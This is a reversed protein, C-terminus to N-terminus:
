DYDRERDIVETISEPEPPMIYVGSRGLERYVGKLDDRVHPAVYKEVYPRFHLEQVALIATRQGIFSRLSAFNRAIGIRSEQNGFAGAYLTAGCRNPNDRESAVVDSAFRLLTSDRYEKQVLLTWLWYSQWTYYNINEDQLHTSIRVLHHHETRVVSLYRVVQDTAAPHESLSHLILTTLDAFFADPVSFEACNALISLRRICFRFTRSSVEGNELTRLTLDRLLTFSRSIPRVARTQWIVDVQQIAPDSSGLIKGIKATESARVIETKGSNVSLSLNRLVLVLDRLARRADHISACVVRIDDM